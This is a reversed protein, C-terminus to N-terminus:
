VKANKDEEAKSAARFEWIVAYLDGIKVVSLGKPQVFKLHLM